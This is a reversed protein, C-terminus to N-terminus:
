KKVEVAPNVDGGCVHCCLYKWPESFPTVFLEGDVERVESVAGDSVPFAAEPHDKCSVLTFIKM